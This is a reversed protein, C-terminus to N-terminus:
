YGTALNFARSKQTDFTPINEHGSITNSIIFETQQPRLISYDRHISKEYDYTILLFRAIQSIRNKNRRLLKEILNTTINFQYYRCLLKASLFLNSKM